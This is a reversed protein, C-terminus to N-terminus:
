AYTFLFILTHGRGPQTDRVSDQVKSEDKRMGKRGGDKVSDYDRADGAILPCIDLNHKYKGWPGMLMFTLFDLPFYKDPPIEVDTSSDRKIPNALIDTNDDSDSSDDEDDDDGEVEGTHIKQENYVRQLVHKLADDEDKGSPFQEIVLFENWYGYYKKCRWRTEEAKRKIVKGDITKPNRGFNSQGLIQKDDIRLAKMSLGGM